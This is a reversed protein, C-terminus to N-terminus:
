GVEGWQAITALTNIRTEEDYALWDERTRSIADEFEERKEDDSFSEIVRAYVMNLARRMNMFYMSPAGAKALEGDFVAWHQALM